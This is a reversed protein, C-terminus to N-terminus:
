LLVLTLVTCLLILGLVVALLWTGDAQDAAATVEKSHGRTREDLLDVVDAMPYSALTDFADVFALVVREPSAGVNVAVAKEGRVTIATASEGRPDLTVVISEGYSSALLGFRVGTKATVVDDRDHYTEVDDVLELAGKVLLRVDDIPRDITRTQV